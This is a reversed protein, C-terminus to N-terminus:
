RKQMLCGWKQSGNTMNMGMAREIYWTNHKKDKNGISGLKKLKMNRKKM